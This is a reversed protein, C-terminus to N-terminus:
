VVVWGELGFQGPWVVRELDETESGPIPVRHDLHHEEVRGVQDVPQVIELAHHLRRLLLHLGEAGVM